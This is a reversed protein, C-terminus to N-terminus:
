RNKQKAYQIILQEALFTAFATHNGNDAEEITRYYRERISSEIIVPPIRNKHLIWNLVLRATRGNGDTFPHINVLRNHVYAALELPHLTEKRLKYEKTLENVLEPVRESSPPVHDSGAILVDGDRFSGQIRCSTNKTLELQIKLLFPIAFGGAYSQIYNWADVANLAELVDEARAGEPTVGDVLVLATQRLNLRNGEIANTNYTYRVLFDKPFGATPSDKYISYTATLDDVKDVLDKPLWSANFKVGLAKKELEVLYKELTEKEPVRRGLFIRFKRIETPSVRVNKVLYYYYHNGHLQKEIFSLIHGCYM